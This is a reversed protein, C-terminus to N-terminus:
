PGSNEGDEGRDERDRLWEEYKQGNPMTAGKLSKAQQELQENTIGEAEELDARSLDAESLNAWFLNARFLAAESLNARFLYAERLYAERLDAGGLNAGSLDANFFAVVPARRNILGSEEVTAESKNILGSEHLFQVVSAKRPGDLRSLVTLTRARASTRAESDEPSTRLNKDLLLREMSDIYAQLAADQARQNEVEIERERQAM